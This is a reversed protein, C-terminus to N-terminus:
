SWVIPAGLTNIIFWFHHIKILVKIKFVKQLAVIFVKEKFTYQLLTRPQLRIICFSSITKPLSQQFSSM